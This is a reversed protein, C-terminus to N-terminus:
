LEAADSPNSSESKFRAHLIQRLGYFAISGASTLVVMGLVIVYDRTTSFHTTALITSFGMMMVFTGFMAHGVKMDLWDDDHYIIPDVAYFLIIMGAVIAAVVLLMVLPHLMSEM